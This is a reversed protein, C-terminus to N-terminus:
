RDDRLTQNAAPNVYFSKPPFRKVYASPSMEGLGIMVEGELVTVVEDNTHIHSDSPKILRYVPAAHM